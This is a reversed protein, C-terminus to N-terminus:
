LGRMRLAKVVEVFERECVPCWGRRSLWGSYRPCCDCHGEALLRYVTM